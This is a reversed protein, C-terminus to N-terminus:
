PISFCRPARSFSSENPFDQKQAKWGPTSCVSSPIASAMASTRLHNRASPLESSACSKMILAKSLAVFSNWKAYWNSSHVLKARFVHFRRLLFPKPLQLAVWTFQITQACGGVPSETHHRNDQGETDIETRMEPTLVKGEHRFPQRFRHQAFVHLMRIILVARSWPCPTCQPNHM